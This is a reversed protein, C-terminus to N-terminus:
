RFRQEFKANAGRLAAAPDVQLQRALNTMVFLLDGLEDEIDSRDGSAMAEILEDTEERLKELVPEPAAWDFGAHAARRQLKMSRQLEAM